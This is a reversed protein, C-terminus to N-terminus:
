LPAQERNPLPSKKILIKRQCNESTKPDKSPSLRPTNLASEQKEPIDSKM